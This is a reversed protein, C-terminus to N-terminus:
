LHLFAGHVRCVRHHKNFSSNLPPGFQDSQDSQDLTLLTPLNTFLIILILLLCILKPEMLQSETLRM